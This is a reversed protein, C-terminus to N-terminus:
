ALRPNPLSAAPSAEPVPTGLELGCEAAAAEIEATADDIARGADGFGEVAEDVLASDGAEIGDAATEVAKAYTTLASILYFNAQGAPKPPDSGRQAAALQRFSEAIERLTAVANPDAEDIELVRNL